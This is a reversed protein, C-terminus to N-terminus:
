HESSSHKPNRSAAVKTVVRVLMLIAAALTLLLCMEYWRANFRSDSNSIVPALESRLTLYSWTMFVLPVLGLIVQGLQRWLPRLPDYWLPTTLAVHAPDSTVNSEGLNCSLHHIAQRLSVMRLFASLCLLYAVGLITPYLFVLERVGVPLPGLRTEFASGSHEIGQILRDTRQLDAALTAVEQTLRDVESRAEKQRKYAGNRFQDWSALTQRVQGFVRWGETSEGVLDLFPPIEERIAEEVATLADVMERALAGDLTESPLGDVYVRLDPYVLCGRGICPNAIAVEFCDRWRRDDLWVCDSAGRSQPFTAVLASIEHIDIDASGEAWARILDSEPRERRTLETWLEVRADLERRLRVHIQLAEALSNVAIIGDLSDSASALVSRASDLEAQIRARSTVQESFPLFILVGFLLVPVLFFTVLRRMSRGQDDFHM